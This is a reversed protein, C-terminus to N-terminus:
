REEERPWETTVDERDKKEKKDGARTNVDEATSLGRCSALAWLPNATAAHMLLVPPGILRLCSCSISRSVPLARGCPGRLYWWQGGKHTRLPAQRWVVESGRGGKRGRRVQHTDEARATRLGAEPSRQTHGRPAPQGVFVGLFGEHTHRWSQSCLIGSGRNKKNKKYVGGLVASECGATHTNRTDSHAHTRLCVCEVICPWKTNRETNTHKNCHLLFFFFFFVQKAPSQTAMSLLFLSLRLRETAKKGHKVAERWQQQAARQLQTSGLSGEARQTGSIRGETCGLAAATRWQTDTRHAATVSVTWCGTRTNTKSRAATHTHTHTHTNCDTLRDRGSTKTRSHSSTSLSVCIYIIQYFFHQTFFM